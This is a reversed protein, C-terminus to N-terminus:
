NSCWGDKMFSEKLHDKHTKVWLNLKTGVTCSEYDLRMRGDIKDGGSGTCIIVPGNNSNGAMVNAYSDLHLGNAGGHCSICNATFIPQIDTAYDVAQLYTFGCVLISFIFYGIQKM